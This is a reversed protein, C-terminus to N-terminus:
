GWQDAMADAIGQFTKSHDSQKPAAGQTAKQGRSKGGANSTIWPKYDELVNTPQLPELGRIWLLTRKSYPEGFQYPQIVQTPEPLEFVKFPTPNEVVVREVDDSWEWFEMFFGRARWGCELRYEDVEGKPYLWRAACRSLYTCPPFAIVMDWPRKSDLVELVDGQIHPGPTESPLLDCSVADHGKKIFADRVRGSFECAVLIRM